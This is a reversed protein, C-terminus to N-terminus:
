QRPWSNHLYVEMGGYTKFVHMTVHKDEGKKTKIDHSTWKTQEM